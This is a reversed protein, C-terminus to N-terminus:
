SRFSPQCVYRFPVVATKRVYVLSRSGLEVWWGLMKGEDVDVAVALVESIDFTVFDKSGTLGIESEM